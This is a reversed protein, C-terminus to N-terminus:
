SFRRAHADVSGFPAMLLLGYMFLTGQCHRKRRGRGATARRRWRPRRKRQVAWWARAAAAAGDVARAFCAGFLVRWLASFRGRRRRQRTALVVRFLRKAFACSLSRAFRRVAGALSGERRWGRKRRGQQARACCQPLRPWPHGGVPEAPSARCPMAAARACSLSPGDIPGMMILAQGMSPWSAMIHATTSPSSSSSPLDSGARQEIASPRVRRREAMGDPRCM